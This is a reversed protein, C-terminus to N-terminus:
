NRPLSTFLMALGFVVALFGLTPFTVAWGFDKIDVIWKLFGKRRLRRVLYRRLAPGRVLLLAGIVILALGAVTARTDGPGFNM